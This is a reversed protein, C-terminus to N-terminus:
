YECFPIRKTIFYNRFKGSYRFGKGRLNSLVIGGLDGFPQLDFDRVNVNFDVQPVKTATYINGNLEIDKQNEREIFSTISYKTLDENGKANM